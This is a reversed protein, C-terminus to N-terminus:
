KAVTASDAAMIVTSDAVIVAAGNARQAEQDAEIAKRLVQNRADISEMRAEYDPRQQSRQYKYVLRLLLMFAGIIWVWRPIRKGFM